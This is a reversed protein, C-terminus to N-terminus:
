QQQLLPERRTRHRLGGINRAHQHGAIFHRLWTEGALDRVDEHRFRGLPSNLELARPGVQGDCPESTAKLDDAKFIASPTSANNAVSRALSLASGATALRTAGATHLAAAPTSTGSAVLATAPAAEATPGPVQTSTGKVTSAKATPERVQLSPTTASEHVQAPMIPAAKALAVGGHVVVSRCPLAPRFLDPSAM